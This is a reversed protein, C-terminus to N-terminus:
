MYAECFVEFCSSFLIFNLVISAAATVLFFLVLLIFIAVWFFLVYFILLGWCYLSYFFAIVTFVPILRIFIESCTFTTFTVRMRRYFKCIDKSRAVVYLRKTYIYWKRNNKHPNRKWTRHLYHISLVEGRDSTIGSFLHWFYKYYSFRRTYNPSFFGRLSPIFIFIFFYIKCLDFFVFLYFGIFILACLWMYCVFGTSVKHFLPEIFTQNIRCLRLWLEEPPIFTFVVERSLNIFTAILLRTCWWVVRLIIYIFICSSLVQVAFMNNLSVKVAHYSVLMVGDLLFVLPRAVYSLPSAAIISYDFFLMLTSIYKFSLWALVFRISPEFSSATELVLKVVQDPLILLEPYIVPGFYWGLWFSALYTLPRFRSILVLLHNYLRRMEKLVISLNRRCRARKKNFGKKFEAVKEYFTLEWTWNEERFNTLKTLLAVYRSKVLFIIFQAIDCYTCMLFRTLEWTSRLVTILHQVLFTIFVHSYIIVFYVTAVVNWLIYLATIYEIYFICSLLTSFIVPPLLRQKAELALRTVPSKFVQLLTTLQAVRWLETIAFLLCLITNPAVFLTLLAIAACLVVGTVVTLTCTIIYIIPTYYYVYFVLIIFNFIWFFFKGAFLVVPECLTFDLRVIKHKLYLAYRASLWLAHLLLLYPLLTIVLAPEIYFYVALLRGLPTSNCVIRIFTYFTNIISFTSIFVVVLTPYFKIYCYYLLVFSTYFYIILQSLFYTVDPYVISFYSIYVTAHLLVCLVFYYVIFRIVPDLLFRLRDVFLLVCSCAKSCLIWIHTAGSYLYYAIPLAYLSSISGCVILSLVAFPTIGFYFKLILLSTLIKNSLIKVLVLIVFRQYRYSIQTYLCSYYVFKYVVDLVMCYFLIITGDVQVSLRARIMVLVKFVHRSIFFFIWSVPLTPTFVLWVILDTYYRKTLFCTAIFLVVSLYSPQQNYNIFNFVVVYPYKLISIFLLLFVIVYKSISVFKYFFNVFPATAIIVSSRYSIFVSNLARALGVSLTLNIYFADVTVQPLCDYLQSYNLVLWWIAYTVLILDTIHAVLIICVALNKITTPVPIFYTPLRKLLSKLYSIVIFIVVFLPIYFYFSERDLMNIAVFIFGSLGVRM